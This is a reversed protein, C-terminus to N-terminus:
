QLHQIAEDDVTHHLAPKLVEGNIEHVQHAARVNRDPVYREGNEEASVPVRDPASGLRRLVEIM